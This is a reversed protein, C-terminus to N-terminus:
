KLQYKGVTANWIYTKGNREVEQGYPGVSPTKQAEEQKPETPNENFSGDRNYMAKTDRYKNLMSVARDKMGKLIEKNVTDDNKLSPQTSQFYAREADTDVAKSMGSFTKVLTDLGLANFKSELKQTEPAMSGLYGKAQALVGTGGMSKKSYQDFTKQADDIQKILQQIKTEDANVEKLTKRNEARQKVEDQTMKPNQLKGAEIELKRGELALMARKYRDDAKEKETMKGSAEFNMKATQAQKLLNEIRAKEKESKSAMAEKIDAVKQAGMQGLSEQATLDPKLQTVSGGGYGASAKSIGGSIIGMANLIDRQRQAEALKQEDTLEADQKTSVTDTIPKTPAQTPETFSGVKPVVVSTEPKVSAKPTVQIVAKPEPKVSEPASMQSLQDPTLPSQGSVSAPSKPLFRSIVDEYNDDNEPNQLNFDSYQNDNLKRALQNVKAEESKLKLIDQAQKAEQMAQDYASVTDGATQTDALQALQADRNQRQKLMEQYQELVPKAM